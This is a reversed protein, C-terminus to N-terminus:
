RVTNKGDQKATQLAAAARRILAAPALDEETFWALGISVTARVAREGVAFQHEAILGRVREAFGAAGGEDTEPALVLFEDGGFRGVVDTERIRASLFRKVEERLLDRLEALTADGQEYGIADNLVTFDDLDLMLASFPTGYRRARRIEREMAALLQPRDHTRGDVPLEFRFTAGEGAVSEAWIRGGHRQVIERCIPLGLGTGGTKRGMSRDTQYFKDFVKELDDEDLGDGTDAVSITVYGEGSLPSPGADPGLREAPDPGRRQASVTIRGGAPTFKLANGVLNTLVQDIRDADAWTVPLRDPVDLVVTVDKTAAGPRFVELTNRLVDPLALPQLDLQMKGAELKSLDLLDNILRQLRELNKLMRSLTERQGETVDGEVGELLNTTFMRISTLPTRLEHSVVALFDAKMRELERELTVDRIVALRGLREGNPNVVPGLAVAFTKPRPHADVEFERVEDVEEPKKAIFEGIEKWVISAFLSETTFEEDASVGLMSRAKRNLVVLQDDVDFMVVGEAMSAVMSQMKDQEDRITAQLREVTEGMRRVIRHLVAADEDSFADARASTVALMGIAQGGVELPVSIASPPRGAAAHYLGIGDRLERVRREAAATLPRSALADLVVRQAAGICCEDTTRQSQTRFDEDGKLVLLSCFVDYDLLEHLSVLLLDILHQYGLGYRISSSVRALIDSEYARRHLQEKERNIQAVLRANAIAIAAQNSLATLLAVDAASFEAGDSRNTLNLVGLVRNKNVLPLIAFSGTRYHRQTNRSVSQDRDMNGVVLPEGSEAVKGALGDGLPVCVTAMVEAPVNRAASIRLVRESEDILMLSVKEAQFIRYAGDVIHDLCPALELSANVQEAVEYLLGLREFEASRTATSPSLDQTAVASSGGDAM